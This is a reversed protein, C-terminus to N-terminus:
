CSNWAIWKTSREMGSGSPKAKWNQTTYRTTTTEEPSRRLRQPQCLDIGKRCANSCATDRAHSVATRVAQRWSACSEGHILTAFLYERFEPQLLTSSYHM